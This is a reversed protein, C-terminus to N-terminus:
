KALLSNETGESTTSHFPFALNSDFLTFYGLISVCCMSITSGMKDLTKLLRSLSKFPITIRVDINLHAFFIRDCTLANAAASALNLLYFM